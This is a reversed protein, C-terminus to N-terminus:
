ILWTAISWVAFIVSGFVFTAVGMVAFPLLCDLVRDRWTLKYSQSNGSLLGLVALIVLIEM